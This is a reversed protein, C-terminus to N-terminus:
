AVMPWTPLRSCSFMEIPLAPRLRQSPQFDCLRPTAMFGTSWGIPPPSPFVDPPRWGHEGHPQFVFPRLVRLLLRVLASMTLRRFYLFGMDREVFFPGNTSPCRRSLITARLEDPSLFTTLVQDRREVTTGSITPWVTATWLPLFNM